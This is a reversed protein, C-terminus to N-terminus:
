RDDGWRWAVESRVQEVLSGYVQVYCIEGALIRQAAKAPDNEVGVRMAYVGTELTGDVLRMPVSPRASGAIAM